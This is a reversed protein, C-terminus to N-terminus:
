NSSSLSIVQAIKEVQPHRRNHRSGIGHQGHHHDLEQKMEEFVQAVNKQNASMGNIRLLTQVVPFSIYWKQDFSHEDQDNFDMIARVAHRINYIAEEESSRKRTRQPEPSAPKFQAAPAPRQFNPEASHVGNEPWEIAPKPEPQPQRSQGSGNLLQRFAELKSTAQDREQRLRQNEQQLAELSSAQGRERLQQVAEDREQRLTGLEQELMEIKTTLWALTKTQNQIAMALDGHPQPMEPQAPPVPHIKEPEQQTLRKLLEALAAEYSMGSAGGKGRIELGFNKAVLRLLDADVTLTKRRTRSRSHTSQPSVIGRDLDVDPMAQIGGEEVEAELNKFQALREVNRQELKVGHKPNATHFPLPNAAVIAQLFGDEEMEPPCFWHLAIAAYVARLDVVERIPALDQFTRECVEAVAAPIDPLPPPPLQRFQRWASLVQQAGTLTPVELGDVAISFATQPIPQASLVEEVTRGTLILIGTLKEAWQESFLLRDVARYLLANITGQELRYPTVPERVEAEVIVTEKQFVELIEVGPLGLKVGPQGPARDRMLYDDYNQRAAYNPIKQGDDTLKFHGQIEAKFRHDPVWEPKYYYSAIEAYVARFLHTYLREGDDTDAKRGPVLDAFHKRCADPVGSYKANIRRKLHNDPLNLAKLDEIKLVRKLDEIAQLLRSAPALTPIEFELGAEGRRKVAESFLLSYATKPKFQSLLIESIRRGVLVALGAAVEDANQSDLLQMAREVLANAQQSSFFKNERANLRSAQENNMATYVSSPLLVFPIAPHDPNIVRLANAIDSRRNKQQGPTTLKKEELMQDIQSAWRSAQTKWDAAEITLDWIQPLLRELTKELWGTKAQAAAKLLLDTDM